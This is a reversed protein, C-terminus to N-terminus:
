GKPAGTVSLGGGVERPKGKMCGCESGCGCAEPSVKPVGVAGPPNKTQEGGSELAHEQESALVGSPADASVEAVAERSTEAAGEM